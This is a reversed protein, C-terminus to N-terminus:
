GERVVLALSQDAVERTEPDPHIESAEGLAEVTEPASCAVPLGLHAATGGGAGLM